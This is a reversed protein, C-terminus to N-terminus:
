RPTPAPSPPTQQEAFPDFSSENAVISVRCGRGLLLSLENLDRAQMEISPVTRTPSFSPPRLLMGNVFHLVRNSCAFLASSRPIRTGHIEGEISQVSTEANKESTDFHSPVMDYVAVLSRGDWLSVERDVLHIEARLDSPAVRLHQGSGLNSPNLLGNLFMIFETSSHYATAIREINEGRRVTHTRARPHRPTLYLRTRVSSVLRRAERGALGHRNIFPRLLDLAADTRGESILRRAQQLEDPRRPWLSYNDQAAASFLNCCVAVSLISFILRM